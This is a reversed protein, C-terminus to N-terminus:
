YHDTRCCTTRQWWLHVICKHNTRKRLVLCSTLKIIFLFGELIIIYRGMYGTWKCTYANESLQVFYMLFRGGGRGENMPFFFVTLINLDHEVNKTSFALLLVTHMCRSMSLRGTPQGPEEAGQSQSLVYYNSEQAAWVSGWLMLKMSQPSEKVGGGSNPPEEQPFTVKDPTYDNRKLDSLSVLNSHWQDIMMWYCVFGKCALFIMPVLYHYYMIIIQSSLCHLVVSTCWCSCLVQYIQCECISNTINTTQYNRLKFILIQEELCM